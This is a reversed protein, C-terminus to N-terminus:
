AKPPEVPPEVPPIVVNEDAYRANANTWVQGPGYKGTIPDLVTFANNEIKYANRDIGYTVILAPFDKQDIDQWDDRSRSIRMILEYPDTYIFHRLVGVGLAIKHVTPGTKLNLMLM